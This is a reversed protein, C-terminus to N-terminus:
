GSAAKLLKDALLRSEEGARGGGLMRALEERRQDESLWQVQLGPMAAEGDGETRSVKIHRHAAAAVQPLHTVYLVQRNGGLQRVLDALQHATKGGIGVDVEDLVLLPPLSDTHRHLALSALCLALYLRSLEGGSAIRGLDEAPM